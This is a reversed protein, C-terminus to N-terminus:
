ESIAEFIRLYHFILWFLFHFIFHSIVLILMLYITVGAAGRSIIMVYREREPM